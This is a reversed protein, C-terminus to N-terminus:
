PKDGAMTTLMYVCYIIINLFVRVMVSRTPHVRPSNHKLNNRKLFAGLKNTVIANKTRSKGEHILLACMNRTKSWNILSIHRAVYICARSYTDCVCCFFIHDRKQIPTIIEIYSCSAGLVNNWKELWLCKIHLKLVYMHISFTHIILMISHIVKM